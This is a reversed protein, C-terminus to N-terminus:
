SAPADIETLKYFVGTREIFAGPCGDPYHFLRADGRYYGVDGLEEQVLQNLSSLENGDTDYLRYKYSTEPGVTNEHKSPTGMVIGTNFETWMLKITDVGKSPVALSSIGHYIDTETRGFQIWPQIYRPEDVPADEMCPPQTGLVGGIGAEVYFTGERAKGDKINRGWGFNPRMFNKRKLLEQLKIVNIEERCLFIFLANSCILFCIM